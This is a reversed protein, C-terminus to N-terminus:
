VRGVVTLVRHAGPKLGRRPSAAGAGAGRLTVTRGGRGAGECARDACARDWGESRGLRLLQAAEGGGCADAPPRRGACDAATARPATGARARTRFVTAGAGVAGCADGPPAAPLLARHARPPGDARARPGGM